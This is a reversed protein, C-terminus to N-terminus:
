SLFCIKHVGIRRGGRWEILAMALQVMRNAAPGSNCRERTEAHSHLASPIALTPLGVPYGMPNYM